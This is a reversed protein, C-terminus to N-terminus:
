YKIGAVFISLATICAICTNIYRGTVDVNPHVGNHICASTIHLGRNKDLVRLGHVLRVYQYKHM